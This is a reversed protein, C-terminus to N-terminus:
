RDIKGRSDPREHAECRVHTYHREAIALLRDWLKRIQGWNWLRDNQLSSAGCLGDGLVNEHM